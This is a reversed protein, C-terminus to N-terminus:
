LAGANNCKRMRCLLPERGQQITVLEMLIHRLQLGYFWLCMKKEQWTEVSHNKSASLPYLIWYTVPLFCCSYSGVAMHATRHPWQVSVAYWIILFPKNGLLPPALIWLFPPPPKAWPSHWTQAHLLKKPPGGIRKLCNMSQIWWPSHSKDRYTHKCETYLSLRITWGCHVCIHVKRLYLSFYQKQKYLFSPYVIKRIRM